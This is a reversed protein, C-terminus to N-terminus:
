ICQDRGPVPQPMFAAPPWHAGRRRRMMHHCARTMSGVFLPVLCIPKTSQKPHASMECNLLDIQQAFLSQYMAKIHRLSLGMFIHRQLELLACCCPRHEPPLELVWHRSRLAESM